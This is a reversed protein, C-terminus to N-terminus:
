GHRFRPPYLIYTALVVLAFLTYLTTFLWDPAAYFLLRDLWTGIFGTEYGAQGAQGRWHSELVTLPCAVGFWTELMVGVISTLHMLRFVAGRTWPWGRAWGILIAVQGFIVFGVLAAHAILVLDALTNYLTPHNM